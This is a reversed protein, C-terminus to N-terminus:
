SKNVSNRFARRGAEYCARSSIFGRRHGRFDDSFIQPIVRGWILKGSDVLQLGIQNQVLTGGAGVWAVRYRAKSIAHQIGVICGKQLPRATGELRAGTTTIDVTMAQHEFLEANVDMGWMRVPLAVNLRQERRLGQRLDLESHLVVRNRGGDKAAYLAIDSAELLDSKSQADRPFSAAGLSITLRVPQSLAGAAFGTSEIDERLRQAVCDAGALNTDPLIIIFEEGGYRAVTDIERRGKMLHSAIERLVLDGTQHGYRDNVLKFHDVDILVLSLPSGNREARKIERDLQDEFHRRTKLRTLFDTFAMEILAENAHEQQFLKEASLSLMWLFQADEESFSNPFKGFLQLVGLVRSEVFLPVALLSRAGVDALLLDAEPHSGCPILVPGQFARAWSNVLHSRALTEPAPTDLHRTLRLCLQKQEKDWFFVLGGAYSVIEGVLDCVLSLAPELELKVGALMSMRILVNVAQWRRCLTERSLESFSKIVCQDPILPAASQFSAPM